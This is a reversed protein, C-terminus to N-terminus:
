IFLKSQTSTADPTPISKNKEFEEDSFVARFHPSIAPLLDKHVKFSEKEEVVEVQVLDKGIV